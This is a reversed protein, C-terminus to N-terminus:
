WRGKRREVNQNNFNISMFSISTPNTFVVFFLFKIESVRGQGGSQFPSHRGSAGIGGPSGPQSASDRRPSGVPSPAGPGADAWSFIDGLQLDKM